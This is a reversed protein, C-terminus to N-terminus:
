SPMGKHKFRITVECANVLPMTAALVDTYGKTVADQCEEKINHKYLGIKFELNIDKLLTAVSPYLLTWTTNWNPYTTIPYEQKTDRRYICEEIIKGVM